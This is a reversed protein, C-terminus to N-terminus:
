LLTNWGKPFSTNATKTAQNLTSLHDQSNEVPNKFSKELIYIGIKITKQNKFIYIPM